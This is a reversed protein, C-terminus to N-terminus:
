RVYSTGERAVKCAVNWHVARSVGVVGEEEPCELFRALRATGQGRGRAGVVGLWPHNPQLAPSCMSSATMGQGVVSAQVGVKVEPLGPDDPMIARVVSTLPCQEEM